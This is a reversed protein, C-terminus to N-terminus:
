IHGAKVLLVMEYVVLMAYLGLVAGLIWRVRIRRMFLTGSCAVLFVLAAGTLVLKINVATQIDHEIIFRMFPNAEIASGTGLLLLTATADVGSLLMIGVCLAMLLPPHFDVAATEGDRRM